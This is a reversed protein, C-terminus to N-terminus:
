PRRARSRDLGPWAVGDLQEHAALGRGLLRPAERARRRPQEQGHWAASSGRPGFPLGSLSPIHPGPVTAARHSNAITADLLLVVPRWIAAVVFGPRLGFDADIAFIGAVGAPM